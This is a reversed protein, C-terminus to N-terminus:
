YSMHYWLLFLSANSFYHCCLWVLVFFRLRASCQSEWYVSFYAPLGGLGLVCVCSVEAVSHSVHQCQPLSLHSLVPVRCAGFSVPVVASPVWCPHLHTPPLPTVKGRGRAVTGCARLVCAARSAASPQHSSCPPPGISGSSRSPAPFHAPTASCGRGMPSRSTTRGMARQAASSPRM